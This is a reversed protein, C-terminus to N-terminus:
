HRNKKTPDVIRGSFIVAGTTREVLIYVFPRTAKFDFPKPPASRTMLAFATAAAAELDVVKHDGHAVSLLHHQHRKLAELRHEARALRRALGPHPPPPPPPNFM